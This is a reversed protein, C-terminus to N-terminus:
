KKKELRRVYREAYKQCCFVYERGGIQTRYDAFVCPESPIEAKCYECRVFQTRM